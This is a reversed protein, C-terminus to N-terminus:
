VAQLPPLSQESQFTHEHRTIPDCFALRHAILQLPRSYDGPEPDCIEPYLTDNLIPIGLASM